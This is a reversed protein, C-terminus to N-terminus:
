PCPVAERQWHAPLQRALRAAAAAPNLGNTEWALDACAAYLPDRQTAMDRLRALPDAIQLLPRHRDRSLRSWQTDVSTKLWVVYGRASLLARNQPRLVAGGGTALVVGSAASHVDLLHAERERFGAEGELEFILPITAGSEREIEIDLDIFPLELTEALRRGLTSKGAGM